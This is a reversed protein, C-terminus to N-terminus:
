HSAGKVKESFTVVSYDSLETSDDNEAEGNIAAQYGAFKANAKRLDALTVVGEDNATLNFEKVEGGIVQAFVKM